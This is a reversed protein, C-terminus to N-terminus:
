WSPRQTVKTLPKIPSYITRPNGREGEAAAAKFSQISRM